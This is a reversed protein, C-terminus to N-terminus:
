LVPRFVDIDIVRIHVLATRSRTSRSILGGGVLRFDSIPGRSRSTASEHDNSGGGWELTPLRADRRRRTKQGRGTGRMPGFLPQTRRSM